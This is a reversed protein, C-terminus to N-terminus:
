GKDSGSQGRQQAPPLVAMLLVARLHKSRLRSRGDRELGRGPNESIEGGIGAGTGMWSSAESNTSEGGWDLRRELVRGPGVLHEWRELNKEREGEGELGPGPVQKRREMGRELGVVGTWGGTGIM